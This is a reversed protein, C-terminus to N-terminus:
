IKECKQVIIQPKGPTKQKNEVDFISGGVIIIIPSFNACDGANNM